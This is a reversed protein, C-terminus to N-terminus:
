QNTIKDALFYERFASKHLIRPVKILRNLYTCFFIISRFMYKENAAYFENEFHFGLPIFYFVRLEFKKKMFYFSLFLAAKLHAKM